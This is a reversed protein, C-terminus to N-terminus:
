LKCRIEFLDTIIWYITFALWLAGNHNEPLIANAVCASFIGAILYYVIKGILVKSM